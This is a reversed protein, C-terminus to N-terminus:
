RRKYGTADGEEWADLELHNRCMWRGWQLQGETQDQSACPTVSGARAQRGDVRDRRSAAASRMWSTAEGRERHSRACRIGWAVGWRNGRLEVLSGASHLVAPLSMQGRTVDPDSDPSMTLSYLFFFVFPLFPPFLAAYDSNQTSMCLVMSPPVSSESSCASLLPPFRQYSSCICFNLACLSQNNGDVLAARAQM